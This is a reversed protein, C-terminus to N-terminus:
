SVRQLRKSLWRFLSRHCRWVWCWRSWSLPVQGLSLFYILSFASNFSFMLSVTSPADDHNITATNLSVKKGKPPRLNAAAVAAILFHFFILYCDVLFPFGVKRPVVLLSSTIRSVTVSGMLRTFITQFPLTLTNTMFTLSLKLFRPLFKLSFHTASFNSSAM